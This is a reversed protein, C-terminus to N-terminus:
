IESEDSDERPVSSANVASVLVAVQKGRKPHTISCKKETTFIRHKL